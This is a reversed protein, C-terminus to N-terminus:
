RRGAADDVRRDIMPVVLVTGDAFAVHMEERRHWVVDTVPPCGFRGHSWDGARRNSDGRDLKVEIADGTGGAVNVDWLYVRGDRGDEEDDGKDRGLRARDITCRVVVRGLRRSM